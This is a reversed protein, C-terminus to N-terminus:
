EIWGGMTALEHVYDGYEPTMSLQYPAYSLHISSREHYACINGLYDTVYGARPEDIYTHTQKGTYEGPISMGDAFFEFPKNKSAKIIYPVAINKNLGSVTINVGNETEVMYRKAGLTKFRKYDGEYEWVGIPKVEGKKNKPYLDSLNFGYRNAMEAVRIQIMQNYKNIYDMHKERNVCKISDTDSYIYDNGFELIGSFLAKRALATVWVGWAYFLFRNPNRNYKEIESKADMEIEELTKPKDDKRTGEGKWENNIYDIEDRVIDTVTMGYTANLMEKSQLYEVEAGEIGKLETKDKYLKIIAKIFNKPLYGKKYRRFSAIKIEEWTYFQEIIRYDHETITMKLHDASVVRGNACVPKVLERCRYRSIYNDFLVKPKVNFLEIEFLCCYNNLNYEFDNKSLPLKVLESSSVPFKDALMRAPYSSTFDFSSVNSVVKGAYFPNAHTFGGQFARRLQYYEELKLKMTKIYKSYNVRQISDKNPEGNEYFCMNRCYRRVYGTKTLPINHIGRETEIREMIYASVVKVDNLCYVMEKETLPTKNHRLLNYDLDGVMKQIRYKHLHSKAITELKYGSLLYSCRFEIGCDEMIAYIPTRPKVSFVKEWEFWKRFFSFDFGLNHVYILLHLKKNTHLDNTIRRILRIFEDWTRGVFVFGYIAFTWIYMIAVKESLQFFSSSEIDFACPINYYRTSRPSGVIYLNDSILNYVTKWEEVSYYNNLDLINQFEMM